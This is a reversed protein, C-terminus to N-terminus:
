EDGEDSGHGLELGMTNMGATRLELLDRVAQDLHQLVDHHAELTANLINMVSEPARDTNLVHTIQNLNSGSKGLEAEIPKLADRARALETFFQRMLADDARPSRTRRMPADLMSNLALASPSVGGAATKKLIASKQAPTCNVAIRATVRRKQSGSRNVKDM